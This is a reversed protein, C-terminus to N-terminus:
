KLAKLFDAKTVPKSISELWSALYSYDNDLHIIAEGEGKSIRTIKYSRGYFKKMDRDYTPYINCVREFEAETLKRVKIREGVKM